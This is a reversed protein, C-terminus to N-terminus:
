PQSDAENFLLKKISAGPPLTMQFHEALVDRYGAETEIPTEHRSDGTTRILRGNALTIRGDARAVTCISRRTFSSDPSTQHYHCMPHFADIARPEPTFRYQDCWSADPKQQQLMWYQQQEIVRFGIGREDSMEGPMAFPERFSDGFGVDAIWRRGQLHVALLLHDFNPGFTENSYVGASLLDVEFGLAKLLASFLYNLEYCFGGRRQVVIKDFLAEHTIQLPYGLPINLNEFPVHLMHARHLRSLTTLNAKAEGEFGIRQLYPAVWKRQM